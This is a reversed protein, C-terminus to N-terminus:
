IPTAAHNRDRLRKQAVTQLVTRGISDSRRGDTQGTQRYVTRGISDFRQRDTQGTQRYCQRITALRNSADLYFKAHPYAEARAVNNSPSGAGGHQPWVATHILIGGPVSTSRPGPPVTNSPSAGRGRGGFLPSCRVAGRINAWTNYGFLQM